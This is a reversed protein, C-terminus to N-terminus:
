REYTEAGYREKWAKETPCGCCAARESPSCCAICPYPHKDIGHMKAGCGPCFKYDDEKDHKGHWGCDSCQYHGTFEPPMMGTMKIWHAEKGEGEQAKLVHMLNLLFHMTAVVDPKDQNNEQLEAITNRLEQWKDIM